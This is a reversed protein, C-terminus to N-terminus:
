RALLAIAAKRRPHARPTAKSLSSRAIWGRAAGGTEPAGWTRARSMEENSAEIRRKKANAKANM